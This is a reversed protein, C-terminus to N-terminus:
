TDFKITHLIPEARQGCTSKRRITWVFINLLLAFLIVKGKGKEASGQGKEAGGGDCTSAKANRAKGRAKGPSFDCKDAKESKEPKESKGAVISKAGTSGKGPTKRRAAVGKGSKERVASGEAQGGGGKVTANSNTNATSTSEGGVCPTTTSLAASVAAAVAAAKKEKLLKAKAAKEEERKQKSEAEVKRKEEEQWVM